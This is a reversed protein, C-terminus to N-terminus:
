QYTYMLRLIHVCESFVVYKWNTLKGLESPLTGATLTKGNQNEVSYDGKTVFKNYHDYINPCVIGELIFCVLLM